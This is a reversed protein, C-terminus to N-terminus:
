IRTSVAIIVILIEQDKVNLGAVRSLITIEREGFYVINYLSRDLQSDFYKISCVFLSIKDRIQRKFSLDTHSLLALVVHACYFPPPLHSPAPNHSIFPDTCSTILMCVFGPATLVGHTTDTIILSLSVSLGSGWVGAGGSLSMMLCQLAEEADRPCPVPPSM